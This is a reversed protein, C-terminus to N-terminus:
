ANKGVPKAYNLYDVAKPKWGPFFGDSKFPDFAFMKMLSEAFVARFDTHVPQFRGYDLDQMGRHEGYFKGGNLSNSMAIMFGGRGHDTGMAGNEQVTRGFETMVLVMVKNMRDGLDKHFAALCETLHQLMKSHRGDVDGQDSHHDWGGFDAQAVELGVNAKIVQAITRLQGGLGGGPYSAASSVSQAAELAKIRAVANTGSQAIIDRTYDSTLQKKKMPDEEGTPRQDLRSGHGTSAEERATQNAMNKDSYLEEFLDMQETRNAGALVPYSGRLARPLLTEACLGRLPADTAKKTAELYRNLWGHTVRPNGPAAREMYDQASFHSRTGDTSGVNVIPVLQGNDILPKISEMYPNLGWYELGIKKDLKLLGKGRKPEVRIGIRPRYEYYLDDGYPVFANLADAGGRLFITVLTAKARNDANSPAGTPLPLDAGRLWAETTMIGAAGAMIALGSNTLFDRRSSSM